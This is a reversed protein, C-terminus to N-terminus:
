TRFRDLVRGREDVFTFRVGDAGADVRLVGYDLLSVRAQATPRTRDLDGPGQGGTGVTFTLIGDVVRREYRHLHGSFM